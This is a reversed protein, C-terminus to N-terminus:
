PSPRRHFRLTLLESAAKRREPAGDREGAMSKMRKKLEDNGIPLPFLALEDGPWRTMLFWLTRGSGDGCSIRMLPFAALFTGDMCGSLQPGRGTRSGMNAAFRSFPNGDIRYAGDSLELKM